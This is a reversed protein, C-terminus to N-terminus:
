KKIIWDNIVLIDLDTNIFTHIAQGPTEVIPEQCNFSTNLLMPIGTLKYFENIVNYFKENFTKAVTQIRATGDIHTVGPVKDSIVSVIRSMYPSPQNTDFYEQYHEVLVSPAFPRFDERQKIRSNIINKINPNRPDALISRNGLARNGSESKGQYWGVIAGESIARAVEVCIEDVSKQKYNLKNFISPDVDHETGSYVNPMHINQNLVYNAHMYTGLAQGEDGAAPPVHVHTYYKTLEENMYGNYAVGGAVCINDSTKLPYVIKKILENTAYQLTYAIDEKAVTEIISKATDPLRHNPNQMYEDIMTHVLHNYNGFGALGMTKGAGLYGFGIDQSLRNWLGGISLQSSLDTITGHRDIFICTFQWGRGDIALIDSETFGSSLFAYAAHSQHHDIYYYNETHLRDWLNTPKFNLFDRDGITSDILDLVFEKGLNSCTFAFIEGSTKNQYHPVFQKLFFERSPTPDHPDTSSLNHKRRTYREEQRHCVGDYTNHDHMNVAISFIKM